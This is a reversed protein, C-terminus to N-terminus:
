ALLDGGSSLVNASDTDINVEALWTTQYAQLEFSKADMDAYFRRFDDFEGPYLEDSCHVWYGSKRRLWHIAVGGSTIEELNVGSFADVHAGISTERFLKFVLVTMIFDYWVPIGGGDGSDSKDESCGSVQVLPSSSTGKLYCRMSKSTKVMHTVVTVVGTSCQGLQKHFLSKYCAANSGMCVSHIRLNVVGNSKTMDFQDRDRSHLCRGIGAICADLVNIKAHLSAKINIQDLYANVLSTAHSKGASSSSAWQQRYAALKSWQNRLKRQAARRWLRSVSPPLPSPMLSQNQSNSTAAAAISSSPTAPELTEMTLNQTRGAM